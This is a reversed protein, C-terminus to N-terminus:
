DEKPCLYTMQGILLHWGQCTLTWAMQQLFKKSTINSSNLFVTTAMAIERTKKFTELFPGM